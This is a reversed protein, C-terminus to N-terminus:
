QSVYVKPISLETTKSINKGILLGLKNYLQTQTAEVEIIKQQLELVKVYLPTATSVPAVGHQIQKDIETAKEQIQKINKQLVVKTQRLLLVSFYLSNIQAKLQHFSVVIEQQKAGLAAKKINKQLDILGGNYILQSATFTAKWQENNPPEINFDVNMTPPLDIDLEMYTVDSQYTAQAVLEFKPLKQKHLVAIEAQHQTALLKKKAQLPYNTEALRYCYELSLNEQAQLSTIGLFGIVFLLLVIHKKYISLLKM